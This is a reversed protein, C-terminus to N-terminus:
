LSFERRLRSLVAAGAGPRLEKLSLRVEELLEPYLDTLRRLVTIAYAKVAAPSAADGATGLAADYIESHREEPLPCMSLIRFINRPVAEPVGPVRALALLEPFHPLILQPHTECCCSVVWGARQQLLPRGSQFIVFLGAFRRRNKGIWAAIKDTQQRSHGRELEQEPNM